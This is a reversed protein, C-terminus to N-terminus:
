ALPSALKSHNGRWSCFEWLIIEHILYSCVLPKPISAPMIVCVKQQPSIMKATKQPLSSRQVTELLRLFTMAAFRSNMIEVSENSFSMTQGGLNIGDDLSRSVHLVNKM